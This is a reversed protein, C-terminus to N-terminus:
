KIRGIGKLYSYSYDENQLYISSCLPKTVNRLDGSQLCCLWDQILDAQSLLEHRKRNSERTRAAAIPHSKSSRQVFM